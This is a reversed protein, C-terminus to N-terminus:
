SDSAQTQDINIGEILYTIHQIKYTISGNVHNILCPYSKLSKLIDSETEHINVICVSDKVDREYIFEVVRNSCDNDSVVLKFM